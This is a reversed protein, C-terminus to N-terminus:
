QLISVSCCTICASLVPTLQNFMLNSPPVILPELPASDLNSSESLLGNIKDIGVVIGIQKSAM